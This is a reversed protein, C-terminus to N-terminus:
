KLIHMSSIYVPGTNAFVGPLTRIPSPDPALLLIGDTSGRNENSGPEDQVIDHLHWDCGKEIKNEKQLYESSKFRM